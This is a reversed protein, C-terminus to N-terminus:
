FVKQCVVTNDNLCISWIDTWLVFQTSDRNRPQNDTFGTFAHSHTYGVQSLTVYRDCVCRDSSFCPTVCWTSTCKKWSRTHWENDNHSAYVLMGYWRAHLTPNTFLTCPKNRRTQLLNWLLKSVIDTVIRYCRRSLGKSFFVIVASPAHFRPRSDVRTITTVAFICHRWILNNVACSSTM